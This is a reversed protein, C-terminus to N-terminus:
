HWASKPNRLFHAEDVILAECRFTRFIPHMCRHAQTAPLEQRALDDHTLTEVEMENVLGEGDANEWAEQGAATQQKKAKYLKKLEGTALRRM